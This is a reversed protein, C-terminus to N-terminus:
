GETKETKKKKQYGELLYLSPHENTVSLQLYLQLNETSCKAMWTPLSKMKAIHFPFEPRWWMTEM